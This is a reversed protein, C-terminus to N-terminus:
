PNLDFVRNPSLINKPDLAQKLQKMVAIEEESRCYSLYAKKDLGIGHEASISGDVATLNKYIIQNIKHKITDDMTPTHVLLHLNGDGLHGFTITKHEDIEASLQVNIEDIYSEIHHLPVSIDFIMFPSLTFLQPINDRLEWLEQRESQNKAIVADVVIESELANSLMNIFGEELVEVASGSVEILVYFPHSREFINQRMHPDESILDFFNQWMVEFSSLENGMQSNVFNLFKIAQNFSTLGILATHKALPAPHLKLIAKTVIGLIGESGIFV